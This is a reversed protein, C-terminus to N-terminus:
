VRWTPLSNSAEETLEPTNIVVGSKFLFTDILKLNNEMLFSTYKEDGYVKKAIVDWCDGQVTTYTKRM